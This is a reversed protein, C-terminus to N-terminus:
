NSRHIFGFLYLTRYENNTQKITEILEELSICVKTFLNYM